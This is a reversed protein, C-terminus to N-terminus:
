EMEKLFNVIQPLLLTEEDNIIVFDALEEKQVQNMQKKMRNKLDMDSCGDRKKLRAIRLSEPASVCIVADLDLHSDSEFLIAAEKIVLSTSQMNCWDEFKKKVIPHVLANLKTLANSNKFVINALVEKQLIGRLYINEGFTLKVDDILNVDEVMCRKAQEDSNFIPIGMQEFIKSVYTKGVGIGGTLGIKKM